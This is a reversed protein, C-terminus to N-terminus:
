RKAAADAKALEEAAIAEVADGFRSMVGTMWEATAEQIRPTVFRARRGADSLSFRILAARQDDDLKGITERVAAQTATTMEETTIESDEAATESADSFVMLRITQQGASSRFFDLFAALEAETLESAYIQATRAQLTPISAAVM